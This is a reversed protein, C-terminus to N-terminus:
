LSIGLKLLYYRAFPFYPAVIFILINFYLLGNSFRHYVTDLTSGDRVSIGASSVSVNYKYLMYVFMYLVAAVLFLLLFMSYGPQYQTRLFFIDPHKGYFYEGGIFRALAYWSLFIGLIFNHPWVVDKSKLRARESKWRLNRDILWRILKEM